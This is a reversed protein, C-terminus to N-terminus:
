KGERGKFRLYEIIKNHEIIVRELDEDAPYIKGPLQPEICAEFKFIKKKKVRNDIFKKFM